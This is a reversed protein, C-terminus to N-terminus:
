GKVNLQALCFQGTFTRNSNNGIILFFIFQVDNGHERVANGKHLSSFLNTVGNFFLIKGIIGKQKGIRLNDIFIFPLRDTRVCHFVIFNGCAPQGKDNICCIDGIQWCVSRDKNELAFKRGQIRSIGYFFLQVAKDKNCFNEAQAFFAIFHKNPCFEGMPAMIGGISFPVKHLGM